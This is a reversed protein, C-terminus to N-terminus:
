GGSRAAASLCAAFTEPDVNGGSLIVVATRGKVDVAGSLAAALAVAGGPEVVLKLHTFAFAMAECVAQESVAVGRAGLATLTAFPLEGMRLTQLADCRTPSPASAPLIHGAALSQAVDDWGEPEVTVVPLGSGVAFGAALGGGGACVLALDARLGLAAMDEAAELGATGQGAAIWRDDFSPVLTAGRVRALDAAIAARDGTMRDYLIVEAGDARTRAIKMAPADAPMVIAAPMGLLRAARAVGQAHNGSSFAVVGAAREAPALAVLRNMAGRFKFSGTVQLTEPKVFIRGGTAADIADARLLPTHVAHGKLRAAAAEIEAQVLPHSLTNFVMLCAMPALLSFQLHANDYFFAKCLGRMVAYAGSAAGHSKWRLAAKTGAKEPL